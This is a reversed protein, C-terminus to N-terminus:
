GVLAQIQLLTADIAATSLGAGCRPMNVFANFNFGELWRARAPICQSICRSRAPSSRNQLLLADIAAMGCRLLPRFVILAGVVGATCPRESCMEQGPTKAKGAKERCLLPKKVRLQSRYSGYQRLGFGGQAPKYGCLLWCV